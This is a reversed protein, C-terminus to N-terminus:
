GSSASNAHRLMSSHMMYYGLFGACGTILLTAGKFKAREEATLGNLTHRIDNALINNEM